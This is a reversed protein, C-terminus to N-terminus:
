NKGRLSPLQHQIDLGPGSLFTKTESRGLTENSKAMLFVCVAATSQNQELAITSGGGCGSSLGRRVTRILCDKRPQNAETV